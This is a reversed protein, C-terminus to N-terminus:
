RSSEASDLIRIDPLNRHHGDHDLGYGIVFVDPIDFGVLDADIEVERPREKRLLVCIRVSAPSQEVVLRRLVSLTAGTDLIDDVIVVHRGKLDTPVDSLITPAVPKTAAGPYSSITVPEITMAIPLRRVLDACFMMAGSLVPICVVRGPSDPQSGEKELENRLNGSLQAALDTVRGAIASEGILIEGLPPM